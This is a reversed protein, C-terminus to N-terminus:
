ATKFQERIKPRTVFYILLGTIISSVLFRILGNIPDIFLFMLLLTYLIDFLLYYITIKRWMEGLNLINLGLIFKFASITAGIISSSQYFLEPDYRFLQPPYKVIFAPHAIYIYVNAFTGISSTIILFWGLITVGKSRQIM